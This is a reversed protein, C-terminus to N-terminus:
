TAHWSIGLMDFVEFQINNGKDEASFFVCFMMSWHRFDMGHFSFLFDGSNGFKVLLFVMLCM